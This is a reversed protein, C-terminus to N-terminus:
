GLKTMLDKLFQVSEGNALKEQLAAMDLNLNDYDTNIAELIGLVSNKQQYIANVMVRVASSLESYESAPIAKIVAAIVGNSKLMDYLKCIDEKQKDTFSLNTYHYIIELETLMDVKVWHPYNTGEYSNNIVDSILTLKDNIPLYQKVEIVQENITITQIDQNVKLGLKSFALKAM